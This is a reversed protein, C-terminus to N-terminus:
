LDKILRYFFQVSREINQLSIRENVNHIRDLDSQRIQMPSFRYINSCVNQYRRSDTAAMMLYPTVLVGPFSQYICDKVRKFGESEIPSVISPDNAMLPEIKVDQNGAATKIHHVVDEVTEGPLLRFNVVASAKPPLVNHAMSGEFMTAATTTRMMANGVNSIAMLRKFVSGFLGLNATLIRFYFPLVSGITEFQQRVPKCIRLGFQKKELNTVIKALTGVATNRPPMAAHGGTGDVTIRVSALGKEAIGILALPQNLMSFGDETICGGEDLVFEFEMGREDFLAAMTAAGREGMTEEDQGFALYIDRQPTFGNKLLMEVAELSSILHFKMDMTGRGWVFGDAIVGDFPPHEWQDLTSKEVPVVDYHSILLAPKLSNNSGRFHYILGYDNVLELELNQHVLPYNKALLDIFEQYPKWDIKSIDPYSVTKKRVAQSLREAVANVDVEPATQEDVEPIEPKKVMAARFFTYGLLLLIIIFIYTGM